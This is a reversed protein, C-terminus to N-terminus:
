AAVAGVGVGAAAVAPEVPLGGVCVSRADDCYSHPLQTRVVVFAEAVEPKRSQQEVAAAVVVQSEASM